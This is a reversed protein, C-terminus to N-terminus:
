PTVEGKPLDGKGRLPQSSKHIAGALLVVLPARSLQQQQQILGQNAMVERAVPRKSQEM